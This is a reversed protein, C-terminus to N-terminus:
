RTVTVDTERLRILGQFVLKQLLAKYAEPKKTIEVLQKRAVESVQQICEDQAKLTRIRSQNIEQSIASCTMFTSPFTHNAFFFM